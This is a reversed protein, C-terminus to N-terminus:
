NTPTIENQDNLHRLAYALIDRYQIAYWKTTPLLM